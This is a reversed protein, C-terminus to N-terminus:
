RAINARARLQEAWGALDTLTPDCGEPNTRLREVTATLRAKGRRLRTHVTATPLDLLEGIQRGTMDEFLALELVIQYALPLSRLAHVVLHTQERRVMAAGQDLEAVCCQEFDERELARKTQQQYYRRLQNCATGFIYSRVSKTNRIRQQGRTCALLTDAVLDAIDEPNSVKNRFFRTLLGQYRKALETGAGEENRQWRELLVWDPTRRRRPAPLSSAQAAPCPLM